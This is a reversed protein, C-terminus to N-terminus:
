NESKIVSREGLVSGYSLARSPLEMGPQAREVFLRDMDMGMFIDGGAPGQGVGERRGM